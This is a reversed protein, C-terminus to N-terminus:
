RMLDSWHPRGLIKVMTPPVKRGSGAFTQVLHQRWKSMVANDCDIVPCMFDNELYWILQAESRIIHSIHLLPTPRLRATIKIVFVDDVLALRYIM